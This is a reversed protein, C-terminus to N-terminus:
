DARVAAAKRVLYRITRIVEAAAQRCRKLRPATLSRAERRCATAGAAAHPRQLGPPTSRVKTLICHRLQLGGGALVLCQDGLVGCRFWAARSVFCKVGGVRDALCALLSTWGPCCAAVSQGSQVSRQRRIAPLLAVHVRASGGDGPAVPRHRRPRTGVLRKAVGSRGGGDGAPRVRGHGSIDGHRVQPSSWLPALSAMSVHRKAHQPGDSRSAGHEAVMRRSAAPSPGCRHVSGTPKRSDAASVRFRVAM